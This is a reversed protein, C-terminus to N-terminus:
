KAGGKLNKEAMAAKCAAVNLVFVRPNRKDCPILEGRIWDLVTYPHRGIHAAFERPSM